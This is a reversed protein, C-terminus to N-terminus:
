LSNMFEYAYNGWHKTYTNKLMYVSGGCEKWKLCFVYDESLYRKDVTKTDFYCYYLRQNEPKNIDDPSDLLLLNNPNKERIKDFVIRKILLLGTGIESVEVINSLENIVTPQNYVGMLGAQKLSLVDTIGSMAANSVENWNLSKIAYVCGIMDKNAKIMNIVDQVRFEIDADIFLLHTCDSELFYKCLKNRARTILSDNVLFYYIFQINLSILARQLDLCSSMYAGNAAAGYM